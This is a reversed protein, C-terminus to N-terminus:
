AYGGELFRPQVTTEPQSGARQATAAADLKPAKLVRQAAMATRGVGAACNIVATTGARPATVLGAIIAACADAPAAHDRTADDVVRCPLTGAARATVHDPAKRRIEDPKALCALRAVGARQAALLFNALPDVRGPMASLLPHGSASAPPVVPRLPVTSTRRDGSRLLM